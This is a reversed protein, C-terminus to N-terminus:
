GFLDEAKVVRGKSATPREASGKIGDGLMLYTYGWVEADMRDPSPKTGPVWRTWQKQLEPHHGVHHAKGLQFLTAVPQARVEKGRSAWVQVIPVNTGDVLLTGDSDTLRIARINDAAMDGGFNTEVVIADAGLAYYLRLVAAGWEASSTGVPTSTDAVTYGHTVKGLVATGVGVIGVQGTGGSPDVGVVIRALDPQTFVRTADIQEPTLLAQPDATDVEHQSELEFSTPGARNIEEQCVAVDFGRWLSRGATIVWHRGEEADAQYEYQLGEMAPHPGSIIRNALFDAAGDTGPRKSLMHAISNEHILNQVFLVACNSAGAPLISGTITEIKKRVANETDHRADVDDLIIADPRVWDIKQGRVAKDLGIAEVTFGSATTMVERRWTKSGHKGIRPRGVSNPYAEAAERELMRQITAIHKDSQDQTESVYLAYSRAGRGGWDVTVMEAMSSKGRGRPWIAVFPRPSTDREIANAWEWLAIHPDSFPHWLYPAFITPIRVRWDGAAPQWGTSKLAAAEARAETMWREYAAKDKWAAPDLLNRAKGM